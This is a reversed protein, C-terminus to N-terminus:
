RANRSPIAVDLRSEQVPVRPSLTFFTLIVGEVMKMEQKMVRHRSCNRPLAPTLSRFRLSFDGHFFSQFLRSRGWREAACGGLLETPDTGGEPM